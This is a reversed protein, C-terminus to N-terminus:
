IRILSQASTELRLMNAWRIISILQPVAHRHLLISYSYQNLEYFPLIYSEIM